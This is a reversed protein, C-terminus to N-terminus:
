LRAGAFDQRAGAFEKSNVLPLIHDAWSRFRLAHFEVELGSAWICFHLDYVRVAPVCPAFGLQMFALQRLGVALLAERLAAATLARALQEVEDSEATSLPPM